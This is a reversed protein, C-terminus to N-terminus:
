LKARPGPDSSFPYDEDTGGYVQFYAYQGLALMFSMIGVDFVLGGWWPGSSFLNASPWMPLCIIFDRGWRGLFSHQTRPRYWEGFSKLLRRM